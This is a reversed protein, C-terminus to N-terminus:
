QTLNAYLKPESTPVPWGAYIVFSVTLGAFRENYLTGEPFLRTVDRRSLLRITEVEQRAAAYNPIKKYWGLDFHQLLWIRM